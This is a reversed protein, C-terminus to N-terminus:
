TMIEGEKPTSLRNCLGKKREDPPHFPISTNTIHIDGFAHLQSVGLIGFPLPIVDASM